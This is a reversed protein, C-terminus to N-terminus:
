RATVLFLGLAHDDVPTAHVMALAHADSVIQAGAGAVTWHVPVSALLCVIRASWRLIAEGQSLDRDSLSETNHEIGRAPRSSPDYKVTGLGLEKWILSFLIPWLGNAKRSAGALAGDGLCALAYYLAQLLTPLLEDAVKGYLMAQSSCSSPILLYCKVYSFHKTSFTSALDCSAKYEGKRAKVLIKQTGNLHMSFHTHNIHLETPLHLFVCFIKTRARSCWYLCRLIVVEYMVSRILRKREFCRGDCKHCSKLRVEVSCVLFGEVMDKELAFGPESAYLRFYLGAVCPESSHEEPLLVEEELYAPVWRLSAGNKYRRRWDEWHAWTLESLRDRCSSDWVLIPSVAKDDLNRLLSGGSAQFDFSFM